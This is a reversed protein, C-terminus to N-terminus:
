KTYIYRALIDKVACLIDEKSQNGNVVFLRKGHIHPVITQMIDEYHEHIDKIYELSVNQECERHRHNMREFCINPDTKIYITALPEWKMKNFVKEFISMDTNSMYGAKYNSKAFIHRCSMPSREILQIGNYSNQNFSTLVHLNLALAWRQPDEYFKQLLETWEDVPETVIPIRMHDYLLEMLSTKGSGINGDIVISGMM